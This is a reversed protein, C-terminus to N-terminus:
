YSHSYEFKFSTEETKQVKGFSFMLFIITSEEVFSKEIM